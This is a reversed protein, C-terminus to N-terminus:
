RHKKGEDTIKYLTYSDEDTGDPGIFGKAVAEDVVGAACRHSRFTRESVPRDDPFYIM